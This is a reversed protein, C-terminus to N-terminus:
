HVLYDLYLINPKLLNINPINLSHKKRINRKKKTYKLDAERFISTIYLGKGMGDMYPINVLM